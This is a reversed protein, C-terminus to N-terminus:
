GEEPGVINVKEGNVSKVLGETGKGVERCIRFEKLETM